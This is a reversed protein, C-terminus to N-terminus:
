SVGAPLKRMTPLQNVEKLVDGVPRGQLGITIGINRSRDYRDIQAPGGEISITAGGSLPM